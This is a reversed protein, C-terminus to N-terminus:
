VSELPYFVRDVSSPHFNIIHNIAAQVIVCGISNYNGENVFQLRLNQLIKLAQM